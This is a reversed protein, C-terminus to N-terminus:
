GRGVTGIVKKRAVLEVAGDLLLYMKHSKFLLSKGKEHEEFITSGAAIREPKGAAKFSSLAVAPDYASV